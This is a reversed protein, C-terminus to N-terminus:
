RSYFYFCNRETFENDKIHSFIKEKENLLKEDFNILGEANVSTPFQQTVGCNEKTIFRIDEDKITRGYSQPVDLGLFFGSMAVALAELIATKGSGNEGILLNFHPDLKLELHEFCRFNELTLIDIRM